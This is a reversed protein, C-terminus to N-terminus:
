NEALRSPISTGDEYIAKARTPPASANCFLLAWSTASPDRGVFSLTLLVLGSLVGIASMPASMTKRRKPGTGTIDSCSTIRTTLSRVMAYARCPYRLMSSFRGSSMILYKLGPVLADQEWLQTFCRHAHRVFVKKSRGTM